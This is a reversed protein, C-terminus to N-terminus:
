SRAIPPTRMASSSPPYAPSPVLPQDTTHWSSCVVVVVVQSRTLAVVFLPLLSLFITTSSRLCRMVSVLRVAPYAVTVRTVLGGLLSVGEYPGIVDM